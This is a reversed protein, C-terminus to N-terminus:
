STYIHYSAETSIIIEASFFSAIHTEQPDPDYKKYIFNSIQQKLAAAKVFFLFQLCNQKYLKLSAETEGVTTFFYYCYVSKYLAM